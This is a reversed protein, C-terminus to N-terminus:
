LVLLLLALSTAIYGAAAAVRRTQPGTPRVGLLAFHALRFAIYILAACGVLLMVGGVVGLVIETRTNPHGCCPYDGDAIDANPTQASTTIGLVAWWFGFWLPVVSALALVGAALRGVPLAATTM